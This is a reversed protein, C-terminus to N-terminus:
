DENWSGGAKKRIILILIANLQPHRIWQFVIPSWSKTEHETYPVQIGHQKTVVQLLLKGKVLLSSNLDKAERHDFTNADLCKFM